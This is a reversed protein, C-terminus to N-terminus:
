KPFQRTKNATTNVGGIHTITLPLAKDQTLTELPTGCPDTSPDNSKKAM